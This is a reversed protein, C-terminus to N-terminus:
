YSMQKKELFERGKGVNTNIPVNKACLPCDEPNWAELSLTILAHLKPVSAVEEQLVNGRNCLVGLGVVNGGLTRVHEIVKKVSGGTTLVDELVLVNKGPLLKDYGRKIVFDKSGEIKEAYLALVERQTLQSLHHATWQSLIIGGLAPAIVIEVHDHLFYEAFLRCLQSTEATHPYLADKNIYSSGHKGSTYVIHSETVFAQLSGLIELINSPVLSKM